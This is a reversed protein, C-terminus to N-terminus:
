SLATASFKEPVSVDGDNKQEFFYQTQQIKYHLYEPGLIPGLMGYVMKKDYILPSRSFKFRQALFSPYSSKPALPPKGSSKPPNEVDVQPECISLLESPRSTSCLRRVANVDVFTAVHCVGFDQWASDKAKTNALMQIITERFKEDVLGKGKIMERGLFPTIEPKLQINDKMQLIEISLNSPILDKNEEFFSSLRHLVYGGLEEYIELCIKEGPFRLAVDHMASYLLTVKTKDTSYTPHAIAAGSSASMASLAQEFASGSQLDAEIDSQLLYCPQAGIFAAVQSFINFISATHRPQSKSADSAFDQRLSFNKLIVTPLSHAESVPIRNRVNLLFDNAVELVSLKKEAAQLILPEFNMCIVRITM